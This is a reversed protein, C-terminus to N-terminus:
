PFFYNILTFLIAAVGAGLASAAAHRAFSPTRQQDRALYRIAPYDVIGMALFGLGLTIAEPVRGRLLSSVVVFAVIGAIWSAWANGKASEM